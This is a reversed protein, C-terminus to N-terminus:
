TVLVPESKGDDSVALLTVTRTSGGPRVDIRIDTIVASFSVRVRGAQSRNPSASLEVLGRDGLRPGPLDTGLLRQVVRATVRQEPTDVFVAFPGGDSHEEILRSASRDIAVSAVQAWAAGSFTVLDPNLILM